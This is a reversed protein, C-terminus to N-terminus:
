PQKVPLLITFTTGEGPRSTVLIQGGHAEIIGYSIALGLGSGQEKTTYFPEFIRSAVEPSMGVGTDRMDVRVVPLATTKHKLVM